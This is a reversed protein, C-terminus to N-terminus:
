GRAPFINCSNSSSSALGVVNTSIIHVGKRVMKSPIRYQQQCVEWHYKGRWGRFPTEVTLGARVECPHFIQCDHFSTIAAWAVDSDPSGITCSFFSLKSRPEVAYSKMGRMDIWQGQCDIVAATFPAPNLGEQPIRFVSALSSLRLYKVTGSQRLLEVLEVGNEIPVYEGNPPDISSM